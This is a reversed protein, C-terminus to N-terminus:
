HTPQSITEQMLGMSFSPKCSHDNRDTTLMAPEAQLVFLATVSVVSSVPPIGSAVSCFHATWLGPQSLRSAPSQKVASSLLPLLVGAEQAVQRSTGFQGPLLLWGPYDLVLWAPSAAQDLLPPLFLGPSVRHSLSSAVGFFCCLHSHPALSSCMPGPWWILELPSDLRGGM